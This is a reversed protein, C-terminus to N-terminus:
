PETTRHIDEDRENKLTQWWIGFSGAAWDDPKGFNRAMAALVREIKQKTAM